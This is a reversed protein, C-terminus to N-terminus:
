VLAFLLLVLPLFLWLFALTRRKEESSVTMGSGPNQPFPMVVPGHDPLDGFDAVSQAGYVMANVYVTKGAELEM